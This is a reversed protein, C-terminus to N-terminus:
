DRWESEHERMWRILEEGESPSRGPGTLLDVAVQPLAAYSVGDRKWTREFVVVDFPEALVVNAGTGAPRLKLNAVTETVDSAYITALRPVAIPAVQAAALSGTVAYPASLGRIRELLAPLGRPELFTRARNMRVFSYDEAWRRILDAWHVETVPGRPERVILGERDLLEFVRAVTGRSSGASSVFQDVRFPPRLECLARVMRAAGPGKLSRLPPGEVSRAWPDSAAGETEIYLAPRELSLRLNGTADAYALGADALGVRTRPSLYSSVVMGAADTAGAGWRKLQEAALPVMRPDLRRKAEVLVTGRAGDPASISM